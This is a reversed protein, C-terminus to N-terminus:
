GLRQLRVLAEIHYTEPFIDYLTIDSIQYRAASGAGTLLALDRALTAPDCSLYTLRLPALERLRQLAAATVGARPPDLVVFDPTEKWRALFSETDAHRSRVNPYSKVNVELDRSTAANGEVAILREFQKALSITFLGVGSFLDLALAGKSRNGTEEFAVANVLKDVLFRNVQFFSLHGVRFSVGSADYHLYGPGFLEFAETAEDHVLISEVGPIIEHLREALVSAKAASRSVGLNLLKGGSSNTFCEIANIGGPLNGAACAAALGSLVEQLAPALIPCVNTPALSSSAPKFYGITPRPPDGIPRVAWQARNRYGLPPSAVTTIEGAWEIKGIRALTERLIEAKFKLQQEYPIHQYHCGGCIGFQPCPASVREASPEVLQEIRGRIFKKREEVPAVRVLEGPMVYPVFVTHSDHHSLGDGGYVLKEIRAEFPSAM